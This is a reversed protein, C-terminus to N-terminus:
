LWSGPLYAYGITLGIGMDPRVYRAGTDPNAFKTAGGAARLGLCFHHAELSKKNTPCFKPEIFGGYSSYGMTASSFRQETIAGFALHFDRSVRPQAGIMADAFMLNEGLSNKGAYGFGAGILFRWYQSVAPLLTLEGGANWLLREYPRLVHLGANAGVQVGFSSGAELANLREDNKSMRSSQSAQATSVANVTERYTEVQGKLEEVKNVAEASVDPLEGIAKSLEELQQQIKQIEKEEPTPVPVPAVVEQASKLEALRIELATLKEKVEDPTFCEQNGNRMVVYKGTECNPVSTSPVQSTATDSPSVDVPTPPSADSAPVVTDIQPLVVKHVPARPKKPKVKRCSATWNGDDGQIHAVEEGKPCLMQASANEASFASIAVITFAILLM